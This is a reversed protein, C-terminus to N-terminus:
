NPDHLFARLLDNFRDPADANAVHGAGALVELRAGPIVGAIEQSFPPPAVTDREGCIVLTPVSIGPALDRYDGTWTAHTAAIYSPVIKCGMQAITEATRKGPPLGLRQAREFAFHEMTGAAEVAAIVNDVYNQADPYCAFSGVFTLSRIRQPARKWLEFGVVGGLSCGVFHFREASAADGVALVDDVYGDRTIESPDPEPKPIGNGRLEVAFCRYEDSLADLQYDWIAATSGVGHVFMVADGRSGSM